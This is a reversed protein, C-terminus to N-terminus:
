SSSIKENCKFGSKKKMQPTHKKGGGEGRQVGPKKKSQPHCWFYFSSSLLSKQGLQPPLFQHLLYVATRESSESPIINIAPALFSSVLGRKEERKLRKKVADLRTILFM